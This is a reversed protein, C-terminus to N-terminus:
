GPPYTEWDRDTAASDNGHFTRPRQKYKRMGPIGFKEREGPTAGLSGLFSGEGATEYVYGGPQVTCEVERGCLGGQGTCYLDLEDKAYSPDAKARKIRDQLEESFSSYMATNLLYGTLSGIGAGILAVVASTGLGSAAVTGLRAINGAPALNTLLNAYNPFFRLLLSRTPARYMLGSLLQNAFGLGADGLGRFFSLLIRKAAETTTVPNLRAAVEPYGAKELAVGIAAKVTSLERRAYAAALLSAITTLSFLGEKLLQQDQETLVFQEDSEVVQKLTSLKTM